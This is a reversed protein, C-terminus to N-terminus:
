ILKDHKLEHSRLDKNFEKHAIVNLNSLREYYFDPSTRANFFVAPSESSISDDFSNHEYDFVVNAAYLLNFYDSLDDFPHFDLLFSKNLSPDYRLLNGMM